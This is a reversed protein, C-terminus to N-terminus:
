FGGVKRGPRRIELYFANSNYRQLSASSVHGAARTEPRRPTLNM